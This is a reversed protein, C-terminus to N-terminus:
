LKQLKKIDYYDAVPRFGRDGYGTVKEVIENYTKLGMNRLSAIKSPGNQLIDYVTNIGGRKLCNYTRLSFGVDEIKQKLAQYRQETESEAPESDESIYQMIENSRIKKYEDLLMNCKADIKAIQNLLEMDKYKEYGYRIYNVDGTAKIRSIDYNIIQRVRERTLDCEQGIMDLTKEKKYRLKLIEEHKGPLQSLAYQLGIEQDPRVDTVKEGLIDSIINQPWSGSLIRYPAKEESKKRAHSSRAYMAESM